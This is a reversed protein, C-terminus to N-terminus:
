GAAGDAPAWVIRMAEPLGWWGLAQVQGATLLDALVDAVPCVAVEGTDTRVAAVLDPFGEPGPKSFALVCRGVVVLAEPGEKLPKTVAVGM